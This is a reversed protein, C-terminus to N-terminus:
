QFIVDFCVDKKELIFLEYFMQVTMDTETDELRHLEWTTLDIIEIDTPEEREGVKWSVILPLYEGSFEPSLPCISYKYAESRPAEGPFYFLIGRESYLLLIEYSYPTDTGPGPTGGIWITDPKGFKEVLTTWHIETEPFLNKLSIFVETVVDGHVMFSAGIYGLYSIEESVPITLAYKWTEHRSTIIEVEGFPFLLQQLSLFNSIGPTIGWICPLECSDLGDLYNLLAGYAQSPPYTPIATAIPTVTSTPSQPTSITIPTEMPPTASTPPTNTHTPVVTELASVNSNSIPSECSCAVLILFLASLRYPRRYGNM